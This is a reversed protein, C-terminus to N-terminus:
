ALTGASRVATVLARAAAGPDEAGTLATGAAVAVAGARLFAAANTVDIGGTALLPAGRLPALVDRVYTPGVVGAPFLKVLAAGAALAHEIETPTLSGPIAPLGVEVCRAVVEASFAPSVCAEAGAALARDVDGATRVTGALVAADGRRRLDAILAEAGESDLTVELVGIGGAVLADAVRHADPVARLLGVVREQRIREIATM